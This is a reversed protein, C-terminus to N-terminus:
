SPSTTEIEFLTGGVAKQIYEACVHTNGKELNEIAEAGRMASQLMDATNKNKRPSGNFFMARIIREM